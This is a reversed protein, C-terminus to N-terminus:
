EKGEKKIDKRCEVFKILENVRRIEYNRSYSDACITIDFIQLEKTEKESLLGSKLLETIASQMEVNKTKVDKRDYYKPLLEIAKM